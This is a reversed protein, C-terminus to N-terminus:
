TTPTLVAAFASLTRRPRGDAASPEETGTEYRVRGDHIAQGLTVDGSLIRVLVDGACRIRAVPPADPAPQETEIFRGDDGVALWADDGAGARIVVHLPFFPEHGRAVHVAPRSAMAAIVDSAIRHAEGSTDRASKLGLMGALNGRWGAELSPYDLAALLENMQAIQQPGLLQPITAGRGISEANISRTFDIKYDGPGQGHEIDFTRDVLNEDPVLDLFSLLDTLSGKPDDCLLEYYIRAYNSTCTREFDLMKSVRDIWYNGLGSVFNGVNGAVYPAFGYANYGWQCAEIGSAIFDLPYRYLLVFSAKPYCQSVLKLHDVTTLSKDCFVSAGSDAAYAKMIPDVAQRARRCVDAPLPANPDAVLGRAQNTHMWVDVVHALLASLNLEPPSAVQPHTDLLYRLLTSGSRALSVLFVQRLQRVPRGQPRPRATSKGDVSLTVDSGSLASPLGPVPAGGSGVGTPVGSLSGPAPRVETPPAPISDGGSTGMLEYTIKLDHAM